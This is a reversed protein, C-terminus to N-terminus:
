CFRYITTTKYEEGAKLIPSPFQSQNISDPYYQTEFCCGSRPGYHTGEKGPYLGKLYNGTYFQVGPLDTYVEMKRGSKEEELTAILRVQGDYDNLVWNHDYGNGLVLARYDSGIEQGIAKPETFDMPTGKVPVIEGTPISVEDAETYSDAHIWVKQALVSSSGPGELNFYCHNTFNAITDQDCVMHYQIMVCNDETLTYAVTINANGPYGQDGDPSFLSFSIQTGLETENVQVEWLRLKYFDLGSHLNNPGNNVTLRYPVGNLEFKGGAIRNANRGVVAGLFEDEKWYTEANDYGLIVDTQGGNEDPVMMSVWTAGLNTFSARAQNQNVLTYLFAQGGDPTQGFPVKEYGM